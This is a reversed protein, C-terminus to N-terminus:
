RAPGDFDLIAITDERRESRPAPHILRKWWAPVFAKWSRVPKTAGFELGGIADRRLNQLLVHFPLRNFRCWIAFKNYNAPKVGVVVQLPAVKIVLIVPSPRLM